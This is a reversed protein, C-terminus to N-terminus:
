IFGFLISSLVSCITGIILAVIGLGKLSRNIGLWGMSAGLASFIAAGFLWYWVHIFALILMVLGVIAFLLALINIIGEKASSQKPEKSQNTAEQTTQIEEEQIVQEQKSGVGAEYREGSSFEIKSIYKKNLIIVPSHPENCKRYAVEKENIDLVKVEAQTGDDFYIRDCPEHQKVQLAVTYTFKQSEEEKVSATFNDSLKHIEVNDENTNTIERDAYRTQIDIYHGRTYRRKEFSVSCSSFFFIM